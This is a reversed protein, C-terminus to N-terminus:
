DDIAYRPSYVPYIFNDLARLQGGPYVLIDATISDDHITQEPFPSFIPREPQQIHLVPYAVTRSFVGAVKPMSTSDVVVSRYGDLDKGYRFYASVGVFMIMLFLALFLLQMERWDIM